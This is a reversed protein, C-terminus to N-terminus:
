EHRDARDRTIFRGSRVYRRLDRIFESDDALHTLYDLPVDLVRKGKHKGVPIIEKEFEQAELEDMPPAVSTIPIVAKVRKRVQKAAANSFCRWFVDLEDPEFERTAVESIVLDMLESILSV